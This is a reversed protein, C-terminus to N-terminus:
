RQRVALAGQSSSNLYSRFRHISWGSPPAVYRREHGISVIAPAAVGALLSALTSPLSQRRAGCSSHEANSLHHEVPASPHQTTPLPWASEWVTVVAAPRM